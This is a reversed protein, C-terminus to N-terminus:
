RVVAVKVLRVESQSGSVAEVRCIYFGSGYDSTDWRIENDTLAFARDAALREVVEGRPNIVTVSVDAAQTLYFRFFAESTRIPNPYCYVRDAPLLATVDAPESPAIIQSLRGANGPGGGQQGWVVENGVLAPDISELHWLHIDGTVTYAVLELTGDGELDDVLPSTAIPGHAAVPFGPLANGRADLGYIFGLGTAVLIDLSGDGDADVVVPPATISGVRDKLPLGIPANQQLVGNFRIVWIRDRGGFLVEVFGDRDIDAVVPPSQAGGPVPRGETLTGDFQATFVVGDTSLVVIDENGDTDLDAAVPGSVAVPFAALERADRDGDVIFLRGSADLAALELDPDPEFDGIALGAIPESSLDARGIAGSFRGWEVAGDVLGWIDTRDIPFPAIIPPISSPAGSVTQTQGGSWRGSGDTTAYIFSESSTAALTGVAVSQGTSFDIPATEGNSGWATPGTQSGRLIAPGDDGKLLRPFAQEDPQLGTVPWAGPQRGFRIAVDMVEGPPSLVEIEVGTSYGLNSDSSPTTDQGFRTANGVYYPDVANGSINAFSIVGATIVRSSSTNGIDELGDAEELAIGKRYTGAFGDFHVRFDPHSNVPHLPSSARIVADDVHWILIGSGPILADYDDVATWVGNPTSLTVEPRRGEVALRSLRNEVLFYEDASIPVRIAQPTGDGVHPAAISLTDDRAVVPIDLWGLASRSWALLRSPIFGVLITDAPSGTLSSLGLQASSAVTINGTDMLSWDGVATLGDEPNDLRPLGLQNAYFRAVLGNLGGRGDASGAEPLLMGGSVTAGDLDLAGDAYTELDQLNIFASLVDNLANSSEGGLGAHFVIVHDFAGFDIDPDSADATLLADRFLRTIRENIEQRTRGNGFDILAQDMEYSADNQRPFVEFTLELSGRSVTRYYNALAKLHAEFYTRDHPPLDFPFRYDDSVAGSSRLEFTGDGSTTEDDPVEIPFSVRIALIRRSGIVPEIQAFVSTPTAFGVCFLTGLVYFLARGIRPVAPRETPRSVQM